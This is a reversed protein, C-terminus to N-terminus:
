AFIRRLNRRYEWELNGGRPPVGDWHVRVKESSLASKEVVTGHRNDKKVRDDIEIHKM